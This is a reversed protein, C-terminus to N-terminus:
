QGLYRHQRPHNDALRCVAEVEDVIRRDFNM